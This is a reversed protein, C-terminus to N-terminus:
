QYFFISIGQAAYSNILMIGINGYTNIINKNKFIQFTMILFSIYYILQLKCMSNINFVFTM